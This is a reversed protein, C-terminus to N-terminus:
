SRLDHVFRQAPGRPARRRPTRLIGATLVGPTRRAASSFPDFRSWPSPPRAAVRVRGPPVVCNLCVVAASAPCCGQPPPSGAALRTWPSLSPASWQTDAGGWPPADGARPLTHRATQGHCPSRPREATRRHAAGAARQQAPPVQCSSSGLIGPRSSCRDGAPDLLLRWEDVNARGRSTGARWRHSLEDVALGSWREGPNQGGRWPHGASRFTRGPGM